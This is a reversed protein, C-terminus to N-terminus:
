RLGALFALLAVNYAVPNELNALHGAAPITELRSGAIAEHMAESEALPTITDEAGCVVLSPM